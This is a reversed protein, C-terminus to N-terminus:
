ENKLGPGRTPDTPNPEKTQDAIKAKEKSGADPDAALDKLGRAQAEVPNIGTVPTQADQIRKLRDEHDKAAKEAESKPYGRAVSATALSVLGAEVDIKISANDAIVVDANDIEAYIKSLEARQVYSSVKLSAIIKMCRRKLTLSSTRDILKTLTEVEKNIQDADLLEYQEPYQVEPDTGTGEYIRWYHGIQNEAHQLVMAIYSLGNELGQQDLTKAEASGSALSALSLNVLQKIEQKLQEQKAMSAKLPEASPHIFAPQNTGTPYRRGRTPGITIEEANTTTTVSTFRNESDFDEQGEKKIYPSQSKPDYPEIYFPYNARSSYWIDGSAINLHAIQYNCADALLSQGIDVLVFPIKDLNGLQIEYDEHTAYGNEDIWHGAATCFRCFVRRVLTGNELVVEKLYLHRYRTSEREPLGYEEDCGFDHDVLLVSAFENPAGSPDPLYSRIDEAQYMYIYPRKTKRELLNSGIDRPMDVFIGVRMMVLLEELVKIGMFYNMDSGLLDVGNNKGVVAQQYSPPGGERTIDKARRYIANRIEHIAAKAFAPCYSLKRREYYERNDERNSFKVLYKRIFADGGEYTLRWKQWNAEFRKYFPHTIVPLNCGKREVNTIAGMPM